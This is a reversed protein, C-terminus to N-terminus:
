QFFTNCHIGFIMLDIVNEIFSRVWFRQKQKLYFNLLGLSGLYLIYMYDEFVKMLIGPIIESTYFHGIIQNTLSQSFIAYQSSVSCLSTSGFLNPRDWLCNPPRPNTVVGSFKQLKEGRKLESVSNKDLYSCKKKRFFPLKVMFQTGEIKWFCVTDSLSDECDLLIFDIPSWFDWNRM